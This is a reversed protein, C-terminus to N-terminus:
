TMVLGCRTRSTTSASAPVATAVHFVTGIVVGSNINCRCDGSMVRGSTAYTRLDAEARPKDALKSVVVPLREIPHIRWSNSVRMRARSMVPPGPQSISMSASVRLRM